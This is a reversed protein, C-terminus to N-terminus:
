GRQCAQQQRQAPTQSCRKFVNKARGDGRGCCRSVGRWGGCPLCIACRWVSFLLAISDLWALLVASLAAAVVMFLGNVINNAAIAQAFIKRAPPKAALHVAAGHVLRWVAWCPLIWCNDGFRRTRWIDGAGDARWAQRAHSARM